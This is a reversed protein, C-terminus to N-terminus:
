GQKWYVFVLRENNGCTWWAASVLDLGVESKLKRTRPYVEQAKRTFLLPKPSQSHLIATEIRDTFSHSDSDYGGRVGLLQGYRNSGWLFM